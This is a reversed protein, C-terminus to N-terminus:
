RDSTGIGATLSRFAVPPFLADRSTHVEYFGGFILILPGIMILTLTSPSTGTFKIFSQVQILDCDRRVVMARPLALVSM